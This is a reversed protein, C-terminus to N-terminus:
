LPFYCCIMPLFLISSSQFFAVFAISVVINPMLLNRIFSFSMQRVKAGTSPTPLYGAGKFKVLREHPLSQLMTLEIIVNIQEEINPNFDIIKVGYTEGDMIGRYVIGFSGKALEDLLAV